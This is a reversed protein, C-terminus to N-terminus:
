DIQQLCNKNNSKNPCYHKPPSRTFLCNTHAVCLKINTPNKMYKNIFSKKHFTSTQKRNYNLSTKHNSHIHSSQVQCWLVNRSCNYQCKAIFNCQILCQSLERDKREKLFGKASIAVFASRFDSEPVQRWRPLIDYVLAQLRPAWLQVQVLPRLVHM